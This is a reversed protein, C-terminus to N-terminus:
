GLGESGAAAEGTLRRVFRCGVQFRYNLDFETFDVRRIEAVFFRFPIAGLAVIVGPTQPRESTKFSFGRESLDQCEVQQFEAQVPLDRGNYPAVLQVCRYPRRAQTRREPVSQERQQNLLHSVSNFLEIDADM